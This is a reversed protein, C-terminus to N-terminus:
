TIRLVYRGRAVRELDDYRTAHNAPANVCMVSTIHTRVTSEPHRGGLAQVEAVIEAVGFDSRGHRRALSRMAEIVEQRATMDYM